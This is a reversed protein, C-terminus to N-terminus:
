TSSEPLIRYYYIPALHLAGAYGEFPTIVIDGEQGFGKDTAPTCHLITKGGEDLFFGTHGYDGSSSGKKGWVFLDGPRVESRTIPKLLSDELGYLTETNGFNVPLGVERMVWLVFSSCDHYPFAGRNFGQSYQVNKRYLTKAQTIIKEGIQHSPQWLLSMEKTGGLQIMLEQVAPVWAKNLGYPDNNAGVPCYISGLQAVSRLNQEIILQKLTRGMAAIGEILTEYKQLENNVMLGGPDNKERIAQSTGWASEHIMIAVFIIPSIGNKEAEAIITDAYESFANCHFLILQRFKKENFENTSSNSSYIPENIYETKPFYFEPNVWQNEKRYQIIFDGTENVSGIREGAKIFTKKKVNGRVNQYVVERQRDKIVVKNPQYDIEGSIAARLEEEASAQVKIGPFHKKEGDSIYYGFRQQISLSERGKLPSRLEQYAAYPGVEAMLKTRDKWEPQWTVVNSLPQTTIVTNGNKNSSKWMMQHLSKIVERMSRKEKSLLGDLQYEGDYATDLYALVEHIDSSLAVEQGTTGPNEERLKEKFALTEEADLETLFNWVKTLEFEDTKITSSSVLGILSILPTIFFILSGIGWYLHNSKKGKSLGKRKQLNLLSAARSNIGKYLDKFLPYSRVINRRIPPHIKAKEILSEGSNKSKEKKTGM